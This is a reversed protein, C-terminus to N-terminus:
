KHSSLFGRYEELFIKRNEDYNKMNLIFGDDHVCVPKDLNLVAIKYGKKLFEMCQSADYFDFQKFLDERWELDYQTAMLFGDVVEVYTFNNKEIHSPKKCGEIDQEPDLYMSSVRDVHWMVGDMSMKQAGTIGIIGISSDKQFLDLMEQLFYIDTIFTDQHMYIKYKADTAKMAENYGSTMSKADDITLLEIEFGEPVILQQLYLVCEDFLMQNNVCMIICIKKENM